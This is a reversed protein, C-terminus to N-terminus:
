NSWSFYSPKNNVGTIQNQTPLTAQTFSPASKPIISPTNIPFQQKKKAQNKSPNQTTAINPQPSTLATPITTQGRSKKTSTPSSKTLSDQDKNTTVGILKGLM